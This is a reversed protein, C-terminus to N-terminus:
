RLWLIKKKSLNKKYHVMIHILREQLRKISKKRVSLCTVKKGSRNKKSFFRYGLFEFETNILKGSKIKKKNISLNYNEEILDIFFKQIKQVNKIKCLIIVDDVYRTIFVSKFQNKMEFILDYMYIQSIINSIPLGQPIGVKLYENKKTPYTPTKIAKKILNISEYLIKKKTLLDFLRYHNISDFFHSIDLKIFATYQLKNINRFVEKVSQQPLVPAVIEPKNAYISKLLNQIEKLCIRDKLTPISICRPISFRDKILLLEKYRTFKYRENEIDKVMKHLISNENKMFQSYSMHDIGTATNTTIYDDAVKKLSDYTFFSM